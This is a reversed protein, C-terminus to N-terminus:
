AAEDVAERLKLKRIRKKSAEAYKSYLLANTVFYVTLFAGSLYTKPLIIMGYAGLLLSYIYTIRTFLLTRKEKKM